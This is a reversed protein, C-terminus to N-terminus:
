SPDLRPRMCREHDFCPAPQGAPGDNHFHVADPSPRHRLTRAVASLIRRTM